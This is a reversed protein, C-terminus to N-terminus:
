KREDSRADPVLGDLVAMASDDLEVFAAAVNERLHGVSATGPILLTSPDHALLWALGVQAPTGRLRAAVDLVTPEALVNRHESTASGLPFFPVWAIGNERCLELVPHDARHLLNYFNQVCVIGAPLARRLQGSDVSSLGIAGIKGEDRLAILEALQDDLDAIQDAPVAFGGRLGHQVSRINVVGVQDVGLGRLNDEVQARLQEPRQALVRGEGQYVAGVKTVLLLDDGYPSLAERLVENATGPGYFAATDIHNVGLEVATRVVDIATARDVAPRGPLEGLQMAGFGVRAVDRGAIRGTKMTRLM